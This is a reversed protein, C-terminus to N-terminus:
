SLYVNISNPQPDTKKSVTKSSNGNAEIFTNSYSIGRSIPDYFQSAFQHVRFVM